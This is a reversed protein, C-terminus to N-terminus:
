WTTLNLAVRKWIDILGNTYDAVCVYVYNSDIAFMRPYDGPAGKSSVPVASLIQIGKGRISTLGGTADYANGITVDPNTADYGINISVDSDLWLSGRSRVGSGLILTGSTDFTYDMNSYTSGSGIPSTPVQYQTRIVFDEEPTATILDGLEAALNVGGSDTGNHVKISGSEVDVVLTGPPHIEDGNGLISLGKFIRKSM